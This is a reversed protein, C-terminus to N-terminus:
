ASREGRAVENVLDNLTKAKEDSIAPEKDLNESRYTFLAPAIRNCAEARNRCDYGLTLYSNERKKAFRLNRFRQVLPLDSYVLGLRMSTRHGLTHRFKAAWGGLDAVDRNVDQLLRQKASDAAFAVFFGWNSLMWRISDQEAVKPDRALH